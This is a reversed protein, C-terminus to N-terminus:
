ADPSPDDQAHKRARALIDPVKCRSSGGTRAEDVIQRLEELTLEAQTRREHDRRVLDRTEDSTGAYDGQKIKAELREKMTPNPLSIPITAM